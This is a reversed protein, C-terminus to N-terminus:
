SESPSVGESHPVRCPSQRWGGGTSPARELHAQYCVGQQGQLPFHRVARTRRFPKEEEDARMRGVPVKGLLSPLPDSVRAQDYCSEERIPLESENTSQQSLIVSRNPELTFGRGASLADASSGKCPRWSYKSIKKM